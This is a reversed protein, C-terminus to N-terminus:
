DAGLPFLIREQFSYINMRQGSAFCILTVGTKEAAIIGTQIPGRVSVLIPIGVRAVKLVMDAPQRGSSVLVCNSFNVGALAAMGIVKDIANHRGVDVAFASLRGTAFLGASHTGAIIWASRTKLNMEKVMNLIDSAKISYNSRVFPKEMRDLLKLFDETSGCATTILKVTGAAQIRLKLESKTKIKVDNEKVWIDKVEALSRILGEDLLWGLALEKILEPSAMLTVVHQDNVYINVPAELAVDDEVTEKTGLRLNMKVIKFKKTLTLSKEVRNQIIRLLIHAPFFENFKISAFIRCLNFCNAVPRVYEVYPAPTGEFATTLAKLTTCKSAVTALICMDLCGSLLLAMLYIEELM